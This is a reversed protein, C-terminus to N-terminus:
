KGLYWECFKYVSIVIVFIMSIPISIFWFVSMGIYFEKNSEWEDPWRNEQPISDFDFSKIKKSFFKPISDFDFRKIKKGFFKFFTLTLFFGILYFILFQIM